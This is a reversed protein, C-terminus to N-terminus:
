PEPSDPGRLAEFGPRLPEPIRCPRGSKAEVWVHETTGTLLPTDGRRVEYSFALGRSGFSALQCRVMVTDGYRAGQRYSLEARTVVLFYGMEEIAAYHFGSELCLRTRAVEFWVLYRSHHVLGMRDTEAYRVEIEVETAPADGRFSVKKPHSM